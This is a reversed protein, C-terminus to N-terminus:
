HQTRAVPWGACRGVIRGHRETSKRCKARSVLFLEAGFRYLDNGINTLSSYCAFRLQNPPGCCISSHLRSGTPVPSSRFLGESAVAHYLGTETGRWPTTAGCGQSLSRTAGTNEDAPMLMRSSTIVTVFPLIMLERLTSNKLPPLDSSHAPRKVFKRYRRVYHYQTGTLFM